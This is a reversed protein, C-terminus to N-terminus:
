REDPVIPTVGRVKPIEGPSLVFHLQKMQSGYNIQLDVFIQWERAYLEYGVKMVKKGTPRREFFYERCRDFDRIIYDPKKHILARAKEEDGQQLATLFTSVVLAAKDEGEMFDPEPGDGCASLFLAAVIAFIPFLKM